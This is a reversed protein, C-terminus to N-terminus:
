SKQWLIGGEKQNIMVCLQETVYVLSNNESMSGNKISDIGCQCCSLCQFLTEEPLDRFVAYKVGIDRLPFMSAKYAIRFERLLIALTSMVEGADILLNVQKRVDHYKGRLIMGALAFKNDNSCDPVIARVLDPTITKSADSLNRLANVMLCLNVEDNDMYNMRKKLEAYADATINAGLRGVERLLIKDVKSMDELKNCKTVIGANETAKFYKNREDVKRAIILLDNVPSINKLYDLYLKSMCAEKLEEVTIMVLKKGGFFSSAHLFNMVDETFSDARKVNVDQNEIQSLMKNKQYDICYPENGYLLQIM